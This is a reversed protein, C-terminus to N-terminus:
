EAFSLALIASGGRKITMTVGTLDSLKDISGFGTKGDILGVAGAMNLASLETYSAYHHTITNVGKKIEITYAGTEDSLNRVYRGLPDFGDDIADSITVDGKGSKLTAKYSTPATAEYTYYGDSPEDVDFIVTFSGGSGSLSGTVKYTSDLLRLKGLTVNVAPDLGALPLFHSMDYTQNTNISNGGVTFTQTGSGGTTNIKIGVIRDAADRTKLNFTVSSGSNTETLAPSATSDIYLDVSAVKVEADGGGGGGGGGGGAPTSPTTPKLDKGDSEYVKDGVKVETGKPAEVKEPLKSFSSGSAEETIVASAIAGSGTVEVPASVTAKDISGSNDIKTGEVAGSVVLDTVKGKNVVSAGNAGEAVVIKAVEGNNEVKAGPSNLSVEEAKGSITVKADAGISVGKFTGELIVDDSGDDVYVAPLEVGEESFLRVAGGVKRIVVSGTVRSDGTLRVSNEGGGLVVVSGDINTNELYVDGEGVGPAIVLIGSISIDKFHVGPVNALAMGDIDETYTGAETFLGKIMNDLIKVIEARTITALPDFRGGPRGSIYGYSELARVSDVAYDSIGSEDTAKLAYSDPAELCFARALM